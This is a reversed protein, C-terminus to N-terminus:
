IKHKSEKTKQKLLKFRLYQFINTILRAHRQVPHRWPFQVELTQWELQRLPQFRQPVFHGSQPWISVLQLNLSSPLVEFLTNWLLNFLTKYLNFPEFISLRKWRSVSESSEMVKSNDDQIDKVTISLIRSSILAPCGVLQARIWGLSCNRAWLLRTKNQGWLNRSFHPFLCKLLDLLQFWVLHFSWHLTWRNGWYCWSKCRRDGVRYELFSFISM